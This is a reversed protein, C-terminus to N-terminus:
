GADDATFRILLVEGGWQGATSVIDRRVLRTDLHTARASLAERLSVLSQQGAVTERPIYFGAAVEVARLHELTGAWLAQRRRPSLPAQQLVGNSSPKQKVPMPWLRLVLLDSSNPEVAVMMLAADVGRLSKQWVPLQAPLPDPTLWRMANKLSLTEPIQWGCDQLLSRVADLEGRWQLQLPQAEDSDLYVPLSRWDREWWQQATFNYVPATGSKYWVGGSVTLVTVLTTLLTGVILRQPYVRLLTNFILLVRLLVRAMLKGLLRHLVWGVFWVLLIVAALLEAFRLAVASALNLSAGFAVGPLIVVPAWALASLINVLYFRVPPMHMMGAVAPIISRVPGVFRGFLISIGGHRQFFREGKPILEPYRTM